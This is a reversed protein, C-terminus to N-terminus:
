QELILKSSALEQIYTVFYQNGTNIYQIESILHQTKQEGRYIQSSIQNFGTREHEFKMVFVPRM